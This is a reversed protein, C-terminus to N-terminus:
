EGVFRIYKRKRARIERRMIPYLRRRIWPSVRYFLVVYDDDFLKILEDAQEKGFIIPIIRQSFESINAKIDPEKLFDQIMDEKAKRYEGAFSMFGSDVHYEKGKYFFSITDINHSKFM